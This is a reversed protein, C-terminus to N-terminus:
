NDAIQTVGSADTHTVLDAASGQPLRAKPDIELWPILVFARHAARPHPLIPGPDDRVIDGMSVIDIDLTRAAHPHPRQRGNAEEIASTASLLAEPSMTTLGSVVMNHYEPQPEGVEVPTTRYVHSAATLSIGPTARLADIARRLAKTADGLNAGLSLVFPTVPHSGRARRVRCSVDTFPVGIPAEPKHVTVRVSRLVPWTLLLDDAIREAVTEILAAPQGTIEAVVARAVASYDVTADLDDRRPQPLRMTVDVVFRQGHEREAPLVGHFGIASIGTISIATM